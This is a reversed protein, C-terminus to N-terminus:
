SMHDRLSICSVKLDLAMKISPYSAPRHLYLCGFRPTASCQDERSPAHAKTALVQLALGTDVKITSPGNVSNRETCSYAFASVRDDAIGPTLSGLRIVLNYM